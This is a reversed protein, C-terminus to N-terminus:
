WGTFLRTFEVGVLHCAAFRSTDPLRVFLSGQVIGCALSARAFRQFCELLVVEVFVRVRVQDHRLLHGFEAVIEIAASRALLFVAARFPGFVIACLITFRKRLQQILFPLLSRIRRVIKTGSCGSGPQGLSVKTRHTSKGGAVRARSAPRSVAAYPAQTRM